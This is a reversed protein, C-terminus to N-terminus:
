RQHEEVFRIEDELLTCRLRWHAVEGRTKEAEREWKALAAVYAAALVVLDGAPLDGARYVRTADGTV